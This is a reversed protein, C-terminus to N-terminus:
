KILAALEFHHGDPPSWRGGWRFGWKEFIEVVKPDMKPREGQPNDSTNIDIALGWAHMSIPRSGDRAVFRPVYCGGYQEPKISASLGAEQIEALAAALQTFMAKHCQVRGLMPVNASKINKAVWGADQRITGDENGTYKFSGIAKQAAAGSFFTRNEAPQPRTIEFKVDPLAQGLAATVESLKADKHVGVVLLTPNELGLSKAKELSMMAGALNPVGNAALGAVRLTRKGLPVRAFLSTLPKGGFIQFQEHAIFTESNTLGEWVFRAQASAEPALPRFQVPDIAAVSVQAEGEGGPVDVTLNSLLVAAAAAVGPVARVKGVVDDSVGEPITAKLAPVVALVHEELAPAPVNVLPAAAAQPPPRDGTLTPSESSRLRAAYIGGGASAVILVMVLIYAFPSRGSRPKDM